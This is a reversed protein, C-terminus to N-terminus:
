FVCGARCRVSKGRCDLTLWSLVVCVLRLYPITLLCDPEPQTHRRRHRHIKRGTPQYFFCCGTNSICAITFKLKTFLCVVLVSLSRTQLAAAVGRSRLSVRLPAADPKCFPFQLECDVADAGVSAAHQM